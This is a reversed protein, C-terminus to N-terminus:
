ASDGSYTEEEVVGISGKAIFRLRVSMAWVYEGTAPNWIGRDVFVFQDKDWGEVGEVNTRLLRALKGRGVVRYVTRGDRMYILLKV